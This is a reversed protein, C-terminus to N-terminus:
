HFPDPAGVTMNGEFLVARFCDEGGPVHGDEPDHDADTHGSGETSWEACTKPEDNTKPNEGGFLDGAEVGIVPAFTAEATGIFPADEHGTCVMNKIDLRPPPVFAHGHFEFECHTTALTDALIMTDDLTEAEGVVHVSTPLGPPWLIEDHTAYSPKDESCGAPTGHDYNSSLPNDSGHADEQPCWEFNGEITDTGVISGACAITSAFPVDAITVNGFFGEGSSSEAVHTPDKVVFGTIECTAADAPDGTVPDHAKATGVPAALAVTLAVGLLPTLGSRLSRRIKQRHM